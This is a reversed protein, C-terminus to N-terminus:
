KELPNIHLLDRHNGVMAMSSPTIQVGVMPQAVIAVNALVEDNFWFIDRDIIAGSGSSEHLLPRRLLSLLLLFFLLM